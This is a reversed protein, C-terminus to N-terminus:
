FTAIPNVPSGTGGEVVLPAIVLLFSWRKRQAAARSIAELDLNDLIPCGMAYLVGVHVPFEFTEVGSPLVDLALDSGVVAVDRQKLWPLCSAHLGASGAPVEWNGELERRAWSGTRILVVDGSEVKVGAKKEWADLDKPYIPHRGRLFRTGLLAPIDMLVAKTFIGQRANQIGLHHVGPEGDKAVDDLSFGNYLKKNYFFHCLGDIHTQAFGHYQVAYEDSVFGVGGTSHGISISHRFRQLGLEEDKLVQHALSVSVGEKVLAAAGRRKEPTILNLAGLQDSDGWRGWNSISKLTQEHQDKTVVTGSSDQAHALAAMSVSIVSATCVLQLRFNRM